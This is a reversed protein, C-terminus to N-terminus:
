DSDNTLDIVDEMKQKKRDHENGPFVDDDSDTEVGPKPNPSGSRERKKSKASGAGAAAEERRHDWGPDNKDDEGYWTLLETGAPINETSFMAMVPIKSGRFTVPVIAINRKSFEPKGEITEIENIAGGSRWM